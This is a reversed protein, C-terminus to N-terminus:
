GSVGFSGDGDVLAQPVSELSLGPVTGAEAFPRPKPNQLPRNELVAEVRARQQVWDATEPCIASLIRQPSVQRKQEEVRARARAVHKELRSGLLGHSNDYWDPGHGKSISWETMTTHIANRLIVEVDALVEFLAGSVASNWEYLRISRELDGDCSEFYPSLREFSLRQAL